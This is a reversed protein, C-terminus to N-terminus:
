VAGLKRRVVVRFCAACVCAARRAHGACCRRTTSCYVVHAQGVEVGLKVQAAVSMARWRRGVVHGGAKGMRGPSGTGVGTHDRARVSRTCLLWSNLAVALRARGGRVSCPARRAIGNRHAVAKDATSM